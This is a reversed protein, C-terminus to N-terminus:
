IRTRDVGHVSGGDGVVSGGFRVARVRDAVDQCRVDAALPGANEVPGKGIHFQHFMVAGREIEIGVPM